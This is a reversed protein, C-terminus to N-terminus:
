KKVLKYFSRDLYVPNTNEFDLLSTSRPDFHIRLGAERQGLTLKQKKGGSGATLMGIDASVLAGNITVRGEVASGAGRRTASESYAGSADRNTSGRVLAFSANSSYITTDLQLPKVETTAVPFTALPRVRPLNTVPNVEVNDIWQKKIDSETSWGASPSLSLTVSRTLINNGPPNDVLATEGWGGAYEGMGTYYRIQTDTKGGFDRFRYFRPVYTVDKVAKDYEARNFNLLNKLTFNLSDGPKLSTSDRLNLQSAGEPSLHDGVIVNGNAVLGLQAALTDPDKYDNTNCVVVGCKYEIDGSVYINGRAIIKGKGTIKGSIVVDGQVYVTKDINIDGNIILNGNIGDSDGTLQLTTANSPIKNSPTIPLGATTYSMPVIKINSGSLSGYSGEKLSRRAVEDAWETNSVIRNGDTDKIPPPFTSPLAGDLADRGKPYNAYFNNLPTCQGDVTCDQPTTPIMASGNLTGETSNTNMSFTQFDKVSAVDIRSKTIAVQAADIFRGRTYVTGGVFADTSDPGSDAFRIELQELTAVKVRKTNLPNGTYAAQMSEIRTHCFTCTVNNSLLAFDFSTTPPSLYIEQQVIRESRENGAGDKVMGSSVMTLRTAQPTLNDTRTVTTRYTHGGTGVTNSFTVSAGNGLTTGSGTALNQSFTYNNLLTRYNLLTQNDREVPRLVDLYVQRVVEDIGAEATVQAQTTLLTDASLVRNRLGLLLAVSVLVGIIAMFSIATVIAFGNERSLRMSMASSIHAARPSLVARPKEPQGKM